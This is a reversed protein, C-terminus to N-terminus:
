KRALRALLRAWPAVMAAAPKAMRPLPRSVASGTPLQYAGHGHGSLFTIGGLNDNAPMASSGHAVTNGALTSFSRKGGGGLKDNAPMASSGHAANDGALTGGSGNKDKDAHSYMEQWWRLKSIITAYPITMNAPRNRTSDPNPNPIQESVSFSPTFFMSTTSRDPSSTRSTSPMTQNSL